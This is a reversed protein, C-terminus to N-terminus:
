IQVNEEQLVNAKIIVDDSKLVALTDFLDDAPVILQLTLEDKKDFCKILYKLM